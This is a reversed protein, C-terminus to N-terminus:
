AAVPLTDLALLENLQDVAADGCVEPLSARDSVIVIRM